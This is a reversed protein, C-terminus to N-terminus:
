LKDWDLTDENSEEYLEKAAELFSMIKKKSFWPHNIQYPRSNYKSYIHITIDDDDSDDYEIFDIDEYLIMFTSDRNELASCYLAKDTFAFGAKGKNSLSTDLLGIIDSSSVQGKCIKERGNSAVTSPLQRDYATHAMGARLIIGQRCTEMFRQSLKEKREQSTRQM